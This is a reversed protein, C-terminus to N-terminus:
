PRAPPRAPAPVAEALPRPADIAEDRGIVIRLRIVTAERELPGIAIPIFEQTSRGTLGTGAAREIDDISISRNREHIDRPPQVTVDAARGLRSASAYFGPPTWAPPAMPRRPPAPVRTELPLATLPRGDHPDPADRSDRVERPLERRFSVEICGLEPNDRGGDEGFVREDGEAFVTFRGHEGATVPRELTTTSYAEIVLGRGTVATGDISVDAVCRLPGLNRLRVAYVTGPRALVHGSETEGLPHEASVPVLEVSFDGIRM